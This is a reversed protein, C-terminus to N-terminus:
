SRKVSVKYNGVGTRGYHRVQVFYTEPNLKRQIKANLGFGSDDDFAILPTQSTPGHLSM